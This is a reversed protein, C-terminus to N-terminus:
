RDSRAPWAGTLHEAILFANAVITPAPNVGGNTPHLSLDCVVIRKTGRVRGFRDTASTKESTGMRATGCSHEGAASATATGFQRRIGHARAAALCRAGTAAMGDEVQLSAPHVDKCLAAM